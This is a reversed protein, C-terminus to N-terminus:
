WLLSFYVCIYKFALDNRVVRFKRYVSSSFESSINKGDSRLAGRKFKRASVVRRIPSVGTSGDLRPNFRRSPLVGLCSHDSVSPRPPFTSLRCAILLKDNCGALFAQYRGEDYIAGRTFSSERPVFAM